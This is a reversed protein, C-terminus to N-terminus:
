SMGLIVDIGQGVLVILHTKYVMGGLNLHANIVLKKTIFNGGLTLIMYPTSKHEIVLPCKQTCAMNIFDHSAGSNFLIVVLHGNLSFTGVLIREGNPVDKITTYNV